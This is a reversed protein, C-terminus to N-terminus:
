LGLARKNITVIGRSNGQEMKEAIGTVADQADDHANKGEKQYTRMSKYFEPWKNNWGVPFFIHEMVWTSNSLIRAQKNKSQHFWIVTTKNSNYEERLIRKVARAFGRGGNNSEIDATNVLGNFLMKATEPETDEMPDKTYLVDLVYADGNYVGYNISCLYDNGKDATDTYNRIESFLPNGKDDRPIDTYEKLKSYLRGKINVPEQQYNANIIAISTVAKQEEFSKRDFVDECLMTGDDQLAKFAVHRTDEGNFMELVKGALDNTAWRTMVIIIKAGKERRSLMTETFWRWQKDLLNENYAEEALKILDDIIMLDCGFGTATGQPSTALYNNYGEELSWLNMAADGQKIKTNPFIDSYVVKDADGKEEQIKNRVAKSFTTSLTENYSGTMIKAKSHRGLIWETFSQATLSKGHRPPANLVLVRDNSYYFDQLEHCIERLYQRDDKYFFPKTLKCYYFFDRRALEYQAQRRLEEKIKQKNM